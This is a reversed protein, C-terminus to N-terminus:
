LRVKIIDCGQNCGFVQYLHLTKLQIIDFLLHIYSTLLTGNIYAIIIQLSQM